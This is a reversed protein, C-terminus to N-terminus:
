PAAKARGPKPPAPKPRPGLPGPDPRGLIAFMGQHYGTEINCVVGDENDRYKVLAVRARRNEKEWNTRNISVAADGIRIKEYSDAVDRAQLIHIREDMGKDPRQAQSPATVAYGRHGPFKSTEALSKLQRFANRQQEQVTNGEAHVLDGYDVIILDPVWGYQERLIDIEAEIDHITVRWQTKDAFGRLVLGRKYVAYESQIQRFAADSFSGRRVNFYAEASFWADYRDEIKKRGGELVFHLVKKRIRCGIAGRQVCYFSKGIGSYAFPVELETYSLGGHMADDIADIGIPFYDLGSDIYVRRAQRDDLEEFFWGRDAVELKVLALEEMKAVMHGMAGNKDGRNWMQSGAEMAAYFVQQRAWEVIQGRVYDIQRFDTATLLSHAGAFAPDTTPLRAAEVQLAIITPHRTRNLVSWAWAAAPDTFGLQGTTSFRAVLARLGPDDLCTRVLIRQFEPGFERAGIM